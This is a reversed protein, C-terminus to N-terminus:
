ARKVAERWKDLHRAREDASMKPKFIKDAKWARRIDEPSKWFGVGLGGLFAAGLTTSEINRPRVVNVGLLDAQYQMLLDNKVAGGDVKFAPIHRGSDLRM